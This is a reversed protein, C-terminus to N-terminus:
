LKGSYHGLFAVPKYVHRWPSGTLGGPTIGSVKVQSGGRGFLGNGSDSAIIFGGGSFSWVFGPCFGLSGVPQGSFLGAYNSESNHEPTIVLALDAPSNKPELFKRFNGGGDAFQKPRCDFPSTAAAQDQDNYISLIGSPELVVGLVQQEMVKQTLYSYFDAAVSNQKSLSEADQELKWDHWDKWAEGSFLALGAAQFGNKSDSIGLSTVLSRNLSVTPM